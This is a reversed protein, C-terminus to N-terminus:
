QVRSRRRQVLHVLVVVFLLGSIVEVMTNPDM